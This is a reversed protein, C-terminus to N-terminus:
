ENGAEPGVPDGMAVDEFVRQLVDLPLKGMGETAMYDDLCADELTERMGRVFKPMDDLDETDVDELDEVDDRDLNAAENNALDLIEEVRENGIPRFMFERAMVPYPQAQEELKKELWEKTGLNELTDAARDRARTAAEDRMKQAAEAIADPDPGDGNATDTTM